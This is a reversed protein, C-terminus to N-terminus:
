IQQYLVPSAIYMYTCDKQPVVTISSNVSTGNIHLKHLLQPSYGSYQIYQDTIIESVPEVNLGWVLEQILQGSVSADIVEPMQAIVTIGVPHNPCYSDAFQQWRHYYQAVIGPNKSVLQLEMQWSNNKRHMGTSIVGGDHLPVQHYGESIQLQEQLFHEMGPVHPLQFWSEIVYGQVPLQYDNCLWQLREFDASYSKSVVGPLLAMPMLCGLAAIWKIKTKMMIGGYQNIIVLKTHAPKIFNLCNLCSKLRMTHLISHIFFPYPFM